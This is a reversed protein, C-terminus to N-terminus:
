GFTKWYSRLVACIGPYKAYELIDPVNWFIQFVGPFSRAYELIDSMNWSMLCIGPFRDDELFDTIKWFIQCIGPFWPDELLYAMKWSILCIGPFWADELIDLMNWSILCKGPFWPVHDHVKKLHTKLAGSWTFLKGCNPCIHRQKEHIRCYLFYSFKLEVIGFLHGVQQSIM